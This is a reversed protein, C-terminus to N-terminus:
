NILLRFGSPYVKRRQHFLRSFSGPNEFGLTEAIENVPLNTTSLLHEAKEMRLKQWYQYPSLGYTQRFLRLFHYKSLCACAAMLDLDIDMDEQSHLWDLSYSLRKYLEHRTSPKLAPIQAIRKLLDRHQQLLYLLLANLAEDFLFKNLGSGTQAKKIQHLITHFQQDKRYLQNHFAITVAKQQVGNDLIADAPTLLASFVGESFAEGIHINFTEVPQRNEIELSYPQFRNSIFYYDEPIMIRRGDVTCYSKGNLNLFLSLPGTVDPRWTQKVSTNLVVSPFGETELPIGSYGIRNKFRQEIQQKLWELDPFQHLIM